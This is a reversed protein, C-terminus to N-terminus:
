GNELHAGNEIGEAVGRLAMFGGAAPSDFPADSGFDDDRLYEVIAAREMKAYEEGWSRLLDDREKETKGSFPCPEPCFEPIPGYDHETAVCTINALERCVCPESSM